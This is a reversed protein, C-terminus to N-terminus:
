RRISSGGAGRLTRELLVADVRGRFRVKGDIMVVPVCENYQAVLQPDTDVDVIDLDFRHRNQAAALVSYADECLHCGLRTYLTVTM